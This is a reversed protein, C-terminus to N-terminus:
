LDLQPNIDKAMNALVDTKPRGLTSVLAGAQRNFNPLDFADSDAIHFAGVGLRTLALLHAGGVGGLGAIAARKRRLSQQEEATVWGINRSFADDYSFSQMSM